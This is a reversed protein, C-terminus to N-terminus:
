ACIDAALGNISVSFVGENLGNRDGGDGLTSGFKAAGVEGIGVKCFGGEFTGIEALGVQGTGVPM